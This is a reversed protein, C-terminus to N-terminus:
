EPFKWDGVKARLEEHLEYSLNIVKGKKIVSLIMPHLAARPEGGYFKAMGFMYPGVVSKYPQGAVIANAVKVPDITGAREMAGFAVRMFCYQGLATYDVSEKYRTEYEKVLARLEPLTYKGYFDWYLANYLDEAAEPGCVKIAAPPLTGAVWVKPGRYGLEYMQKLILGGTGMPSTALDIIDPKKALIRGLVGHFDEQAREYYEEAVCDIGVKKAGAIDGKGGDWGSTDNPSITAFTRANPYIKKVAKFYADSVEWPSFEARFNLPVDKTQLEKGWCSYSYMVNNPATITQAARCTAGVAGGFIYKVKHEFVLKNTVKIVTDLDVKHDYSIRKVLYRKGGINLGGKANIEEELMELFRMQGVGWSAAPGSLPLAQGITLTEQSIAPSPVLMVLAVLIGVASAAVTKM